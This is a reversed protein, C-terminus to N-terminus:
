IGDLAPEILPFTLLMIKEASAPRCLHEDNLGRRWASRHQPRLQPAARTGGKRTKNKCLQPSISEHLTAEEMSSLCRGWPKPFALKQVQVRLWRIPEHIVRLGSGVAVLRCADGVIVVILVSAKGLKSSSRLAARKRTSRV